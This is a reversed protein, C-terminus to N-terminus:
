RYEECHWIGGGEKPFTCTERLDCIRCLGMFKQNDRDAGPNRTVMPRGTEMAVRRPPAVEGVFEDCHLSPPQDPRHLTCSDRHVCTFCLGRRSETM